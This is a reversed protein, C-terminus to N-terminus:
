QTNNIEHLPVVGDTDLNLEYLEENNKLSFTLSAPTMLGNSFFIIGIKPKEEESEDSNENFIDEDETEDTKKFLEESHSTLFLGQPFSYDEWRKKKSLTVWTEKEIDWGWWRYGTAKETEDQILSLGIASGSLMAYEVAAQTYQRLRNSEIKLDDYPNGQRPSVLIAGIVISLILLVILMEILTFGLARRFNM